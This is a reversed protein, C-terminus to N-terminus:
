GLVSYQVSEKRARYIGTDIILYERSVRRAFFGTEPTVRFQCLGFCKTM